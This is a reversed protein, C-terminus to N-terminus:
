ERGQQMTTRPPPGGKICEAAGARCRAL